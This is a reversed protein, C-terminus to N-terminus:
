EDPRPYAGRGALATIRAWWVSSPSCVELPDGIKVLQDHRGPTRLTDARHGGTGPPSGSAPLPRRDAGASRRPCTAASIARVAMAARAPPDVGRQAPAPTRTKTATTTESTTLRTHCAAGAKRCEPNLKMKLPVHFGSM